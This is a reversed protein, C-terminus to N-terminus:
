HWLLAVSKEATAGHLNDGRSDGRASEFAAEKEFLVKGKDLTRAMTCTKGCGWNGKKGKCTTKHPWGPPPLTM